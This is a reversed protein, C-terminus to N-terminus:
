VVGRHNKAKKIELAKSIIEAMEDPLFNGSNLSIDFTSTDFIDIKYLKKYRRRNQAERKRIHKKAEKLSLGDREAVRKARLSVPAYLWVRLDADVMWPGLWTTIVCDKKKAEEKIYEDFKLDINRDSEAKLQFEELSIGEKKALDKFSVSILSFGLKRSISTGLTTKGSGAFGAIAIIM